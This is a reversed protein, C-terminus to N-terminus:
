SRRPRRNRCAALVDRYVRVTQEATRDWTFGRARERGRDRLGARLAPDAHAEHSRGPRLNRQLHNQYGASAHFAALLSPQFHVDLCDDLEMLHSDADHITTRHAYTM